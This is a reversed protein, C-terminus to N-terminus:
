VKPKIYVGILPRPCPRESVFDSVFGARTRLEVHGPGKGGYVLVAGEPARYPDNNPISIRKFGYSLQLEDGAEKAYQTKPYSDVLNAALLANKVYRWCSYTSHARARGAAIQAAEIMRADYRYQGSRPGFLGKQEGSLSQATRPNHLAFDSSYNATACASFGMGILVTVLALLHHRNFPLHCM